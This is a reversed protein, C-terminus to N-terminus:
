STKNEKQEVELGQLFSIAIKKGQESYPLRQYFLGAKVEIFQPNNSIPANQNLYPLSQESETLNRVEPSPSNIDKILSTDLRFAETIYEENSRAVKADVGTIVQLKAWFDQSPLQCRYKDYLQKWLPINLVAKLAAQGAQEDTGYTIDKGLVSVKLDKGLEELLGYAKLAALEGWFAGNKSSKHKLLSALSDNKYANPIPKDEFTDYITRTFEILRPLRNPNNPISYTGLNM